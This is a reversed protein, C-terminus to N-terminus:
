SPKELRQLNSEARKLVVLALEKDAKLREIAAQSAEVNADAIEVQQLLEEDDLQFLKAAAVTDVTDGQDALVLKIRGSIKPSFSASVRAELTGTGMVEDVVSGNKVDHGIVLVPKFKMWYVVGSITAVLVALKAAFKMCRM